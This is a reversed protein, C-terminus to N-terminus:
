FLFLCLLFGVLVMVEEELVFSQLYLEVFEQVRWRWFFVLLWSGDPCCFLELSIYDKKLGLDIGCGGLM